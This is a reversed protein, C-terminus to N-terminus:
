SSKKSLKQLAMELYGVLQALSSQPNLSGCEMELVAFADKILDNQSVLDALKWTRDSVLVPHANSIDMNQQDLHRDIIFQARLVLVTYVSLQKTLDESRIKRKCLKTVFKTLDHTQKLVNNSGDRNKDILFAKIFLQIASLYSQVM